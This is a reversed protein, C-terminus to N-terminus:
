KANKSIIVNYLTILKSLENSPGHHKLREIMNSLQPLYCQLEELREKVATGNGCTNSDQRMGISTSPLTPDQSETTSQLLSTAM